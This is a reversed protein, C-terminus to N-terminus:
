FETMFKTLRTKLFVSVQSRTDQVARYLFHQRLEVMYAYNFWEETNKSLRFANFFITASNKGFKIKGKDQLHQPHYRSISEDSRPCLYTARDLIIQAAYPLYGKTEAVKSAVVRLKASYEQLSYRPM